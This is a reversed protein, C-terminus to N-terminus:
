RREGSVRSTAASILDPRGGRLPTCILCGDQPEIDLFASALARPFLGEVPEMGFLVVNGPLEAARGLLTLMCVKAHLLAIFRVDLGLGPVGEGAPAGYDREEDEVPPPAAEKLVSTACAYCPDAPGGGCRIVEGGAGREYVGAYVAPVSAAVALRNLLHKPPEVDTCGAVLSARELEDALRGGLALADAEVAEVQAAPNRHRILAAVAAAKSRGLYRDDCEHRVVNAETLVDPDVLTFRGVGAKALELAVTSGGSGLGVVVVHKRALAELDVVGDLRAWRSV